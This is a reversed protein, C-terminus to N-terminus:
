AEDPRRSDTFSRRVAEFAGSPDEAGTISRGVVLYDAGARAAEEPTAYRTQDGPDDGPLRIGPTVVLPGSGYARRIPKVETVSAVVGALRAQVALGALRVVEDVLSLPSRGFIGEVEETALSTLLTVALVAPGDEGAAELAATLMEVGGSAHVTLIDVGLASAATVAGHVTNPIDHYKLDLFVSKERDKLEEVLSPGVTTFLQAGVKFFDASGDLRDVLDLARERSAVDLAVIIRESFEAGTM